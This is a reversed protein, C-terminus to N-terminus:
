FGLGLGFMFRFDDGSGFWSYKTTIKNIITVWAGGGYSAHWKKSSEFPYWVRGFDFGAFLGYKLPTFPNKIKGMDIRLDSYQYYSQRGIFRSDRYGRLETSASQYFEYKNNFIAKGKMKTALTIRETLRVDVSLDLEAHPFNQEPHLINMKWGATLTGTFSPIINSFKKDIEYSVSLDAFYRTDFISYDNNHYENIYRGDVQKIKFLEFSSALILQHEKKWTYHFSPTLSYQGVKVRNYVKEEDKFGDTNNGFGFFNSFNSPSGIFADIYISKRDDYMPFIGKYMFGKLYNYGIRHQYSFPSRKLGYRTYTVFSGLSLGWDTDYVGWPSFSISNYRTKEYDYDHIKDIDTLLVRTKKISDLTLKQCNYGFVKVKSGPLIDYKNEGKGGLLYLPIKNKRNGRVEFRDNGGMGYLWIEKSNRKTYRHSFVLNGTEGNYVDIQISDRHSKDIVFKDNNDTGTIVPNFQLEKYYELATEELDDRRSKLKKKVGSIEECQVERPLRAFAYDIVDDTLRNKLYQAQRIWDTQESQAILAVDLTFGLKNFKKLDGIRDEYNSIFGLSLVSLMQGTLLGDIKMFAHSRDIVIPKYVVKAGVVSKQWNWNEPTKNWDGILMDFLRERIYLDQDVIHSKDGRMNKLLDATSIIDKRTTLDPVNTISVLKDQIETGNVITDSTANRAIYYLRPDNSNLGSIKAMYDSAIFAYPNVITYVDGIFGDLYTNKFDEKNYMEQFFESQIFSSSGSLPKVLYNRGRKDVMYLGHFEVAQGTVEFNGMLTNLTSSGVSVPITYLERYHKGWVFDYGCSRHKNQQSYISKRITDGSYLPITDSNVRGEQALLTTSLLLQCISHIFLIAIYKSLNNMILRKM